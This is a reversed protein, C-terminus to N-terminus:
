PGHRMLAVYFGDTGTTHPTITLGNPEFRARISTGGFHRHWLSNGSSASFVANAALFAAIQETNEEPIISCTIYVLCGGPKV